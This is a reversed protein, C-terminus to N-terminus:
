GGVSDNDAGAMVAKGGGGIEGAGTEFHQHEFAAMQDTPGGNRFLNVRAEFVRDTGIDDAEEPGFDNAVQMQGLVTEFQERKIIREYRHLVAVIEGTPGVFGRGALLDLTM